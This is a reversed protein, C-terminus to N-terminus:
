PAQNQFQFQVRVSGDLPVVLTSNSASWATPVLFLRDHGQILLRLHRYRYHFAQGTTAPLVTEVVNPSTLYLREKTDVIVSPLRDLHVASYRASGRGSLQALTATAWFLSTTLVLYISIIAAPRLGSGRGLLMDLKSGYATLAAGLALVLPTVLSYAPWERLYAYTFLLVVGVGLMLRGALGVGFAVRRLQELRRPMTAAGDILRRIGAHSLAAVVSLLGAALLPVLLPQPSRMVFDQTSLGITDVDLGFYEYQARSSAYGFYFLLASIITIPAVISSVSSILGHLRGLVPVAEDDVRNTM